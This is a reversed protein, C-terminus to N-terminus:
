QGIDLQQEHNASVVVLEELVELSPEGADMAHRHDALAATAVPSPRSLAARAVPPALLPATPM